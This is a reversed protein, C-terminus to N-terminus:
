YGQATLTEISNQLLAESYKFNHIGLSYDRLVMQFNIMAGVTANKLSPFVPLANNTVRQEATWSSTSGPNKWVGTPNTSPDYINLYGDYNNTTVGAWLNTEPDANRHLIDVGGGVANIKAALTNLLGKITNRPTTWLTTSTSSASTHCGTTNCGNFNGKAYFTHGGSRGTVPAMHCDSCSAAATHASNGYAKTGTFEVGGQGAFVAGQTGYHVHTRYSPVVLNGSTATNNFIVTGPNAKLDAYNLVDSNTAATLPRPQHCKVCLNSAGNDQTLNITKAGKWMTMPVAATTTLPFFDDPTYTKHLNPHCTFCNFEGLTSGAAAAYDNAYKNTTTNLTFTSPVNNAVVYKFAQSTHCPTCGTNGAEEFAAEGFSHKSFEFETAKQEVVESNHCLKCSENADAGAKGMPGECATFILGAPLLVLMLKSLTKM